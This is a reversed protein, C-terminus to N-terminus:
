EVVEAVDDWLGQAKRRALEPAVTSAISRALGLIQSLEFDEPDPIPWSFPVRIPKSGLFSGSLALQGEEYQVAIEVDGTTTLVADLVHTEYLWSMANSLELDKVHAKGVSLRAQGISPFLTTAVLSVSSSEIIFDDIHLPPSDSKRLTAAGVASLTLHADDVLVRSPDDDFVVWGMPPVDIELSDIELSATGVGTRKARVGRIEIRGRLLSLDVDEIEIEDARLAHTLQAEVRDEVRGALAYGLLILLLPYACVLGVSVLLAKRRRSM